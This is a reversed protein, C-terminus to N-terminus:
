ECAIGDHDRDLGSRYGPDGEHLPAAGAQRAADCNEYFVSPQPAITPAATPPPAYRTTPTTEPVTPVTQAVVQATTTPAESTSTTTEVTTDAGGSDLPTGNDTGCAALAVPSALVIAFLVGRTRTSMTRKTM